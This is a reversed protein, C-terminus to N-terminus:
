RQHDELRVTNLINNSLIDQDQAVVVAGIAKVVRLDKTNLIINIENLLVNHQLHDQVPVIKTKLKM